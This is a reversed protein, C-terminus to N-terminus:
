FNSFMFKNLFNCIFAQIGRLVRVPVNFSGLLGYRM